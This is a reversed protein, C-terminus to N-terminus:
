HHTLTWNTWNSIVELNLDTILGVPIKTFAKVVELDVQRFVVGGPNIGVLRQCIVRNDDWVVEIPEDMMETPVWLRCRGNRGELHNIEDLIYVPPLPTLKAEALYNIVNIEHGRMWWVYVPTM